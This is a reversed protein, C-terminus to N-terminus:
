LNAEKPLDTSLIIATQLSDGRSRSIFSSLHKQTMAFEGM